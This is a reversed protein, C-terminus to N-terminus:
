ALNGAQDLLPFPGFDIMWISDAEFELFHIKSDILDQSLGGKKMLDVINQQAGLAKSVIYVDTNPAAHVAIMAISNSVSEGMGASPYALLLAQSPDWELLASFKKGKPPETASYWEPHQLRFDSYNDAKGPVAKESQTKWAPLMIFHDDVTQKPASTEVPMSECTWFASCAVLVAMAASRRYDM